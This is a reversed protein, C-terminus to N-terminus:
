FVTLILGRPQEAMFKEVRYRGRQGCPERLLTFTAARVDSLIMSGDRPM